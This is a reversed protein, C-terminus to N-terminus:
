EQNDMENLVEQRPRDQLAETQKRFNKVCSYCYWGITTLIGNDRKRICRCIKCKTIKGMKPIGM